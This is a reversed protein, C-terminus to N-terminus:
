MWSGTKVIKVSIFTALVLCFGLIALWAAKRGRWGVSVRAYLLGGYIAWSLISWVERLRLALVSGRSVESWLVGSILALTLLPFGVLIARFAVDDLLVLPPLRLLMRSPRHSKLRREQLLYMLGACCTVAFAANGFIALTVHAWLGLGQVKPGLEALRDPLAAAASGALVVIPLVFAGMVRDQYRVEVVLYLLAIAWAFISLSEYPNVLPPHGLVFLRFLHALTHACFGALTCVTAVRGLVPRGTAVHLLYHLTGLLYGLLALHFCIQDFSM